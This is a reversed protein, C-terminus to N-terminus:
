VRGHWMFARVKCRHVLLWGFLALIAIGVLEVVYVWPPTSLKHYIGYLWVSKDVSHFSFGLSPWLLTGPCLWMGDLALHMLVGLGLILLQNKHRALYLWLGASAIILVFLLSHCFLRGGFTGSVLLGILKDVDPLLSGVLLVRLDIRRGVSAVWEEGAHLKGATGSAWDSKQAMKNEARTAFFGGLLVAAGLTIGAHAFPLM